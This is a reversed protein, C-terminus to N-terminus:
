TSARQSSSSISSSKHAQKTSKRSKPSRGDESGFSENADAVASIPRSKKSTMMIPHLKVLLDRVIPQQVNTLWETLNKNHNHCGQPDKRYSFEDVYSMYLKKDKPNYYHVHTVFERQSLVSSFIIADTCSQSRQPDIKDLMELQSRVRHAGGLAAQGEGAYVTGNTAESKLEILRSPFINSRTPQSYPKIQPHDAVSLEEMSWTSTLPTPYGYHRDPKPASLSYTYGRNRPLPKTSWPLDRGEAVGPANIPFLSTSLIDAVVFEPENWGKRLQENIKLRDDDGLPPSGREKRIHKDVFKQIEEPMQDGLDDIVIGHMKLIGRFMSSSASSRESQTNGVSEPAPVEANQQQSMQDSASQLGPVSNCPSSPSEITPLIRDSPSEVNICSQRNTNQLWDDCLWSTTPKPLSSLQHYKSLSLHDFDPKQARRLLPSKSQTDKTTSSRRRAPKLTPPKRVSSVTSSPTPLHPEPELLRHKTAPSSDLSEDERLRKRTQMLTSSVVDPSM